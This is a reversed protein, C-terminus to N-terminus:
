SDSKVRKADRRRERLHADADVRVKEHTTGLGRAVAAIIGREGTAMAAALDARYIETATELRARLQAVEQGSRVAAEVLKEAHPTMAAAYRM